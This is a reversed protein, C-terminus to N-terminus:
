RCDAMSLPQRHRIRWLYHHISRGGKLISEQVIWGTPPPQCIFMSRWWRTLSKWWSSGHKEVVWSWGNPVKFYSKQKGLNMRPVNWRGNILRTFWPVMSDGVMKSDWSVMTLQGKVQSIMLEGHTSCWFSVLERGTWWWGVGRTWWSNVVEVLSRGGGACGHATGRLRQAVPLERPRHRGLWGVLVDGPGALPVPPGASM